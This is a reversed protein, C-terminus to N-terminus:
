PSESQTSNSHCFRPFSIFHCGIYRCPLVFVTAMNENFLRWDWVVICQIEECFNYKLQGCSLYSAMDSSPCLFWQIRCLATSRIARVGRRLNLPVTNLRMQRNRLSYAYVFNIGIIIEMVMEIRYILCHDSPSHAHLRVFLHDLLSLYSCTCMGREREFSTSTWTALHLKYLFLM